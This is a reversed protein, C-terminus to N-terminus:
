NIDTFLDLYAFSNEAHSHDTSVVQLAIKISKTDDLHKELTMDLFRGIDLFLRMRLNERKESTHISSQIRYNTEYTEHFHGEAQGSEPFSVIGFCGRTIRCIMTLSRLRQENSLHSTQNLFQLESYLFKDIIEWAFEIEDPSPIHFRFKVQDLKMEEGWISGDEGENMSRYELPHIKVLSQLLDGLGCALALYVDRNLIRICQELVSLIMGKHQLLLDGRTWLLDSFVILYWALELDIESNIYLDNKESDHLITEISQCIRPLIEQLIREPHTRVLTQILSSALRRVKPSLFPHSLYDFMKKRIIQFIPEDCQRLINSMLQTIYQGITSTENSTSNENSVDASLIENLHFVRELFDGLFDQYKETIEGKEMVCPVLHFVADYFKLITITRNVDNLDITPLITTLLQLLHTKEKVISKTLRILCNM